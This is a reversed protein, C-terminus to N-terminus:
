PHGMESQVLSPKFAQKAMRRWQGHIVGSGSSRMNSATLTMRDSCLSSPPHAVYSSFRPGSKVSSNFGASTNWPMM